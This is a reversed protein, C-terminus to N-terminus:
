YRFIFYSRDTKLKNIIHFFAKIWEFRQVLSFVYLALKTYKGYLTLGGSWDTQWGQTMYLVRFIPQICSKQLCAFIDFGYKKHFLTLCYYFMAIMTSALFFNEVFFSCTCWIKMSWSWRVFILPMISITLSLIAPHWSMTFIPVSLLM